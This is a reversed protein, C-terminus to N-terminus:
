SDRCLCCQLVTISLDSHASLRVAEIKPVHL